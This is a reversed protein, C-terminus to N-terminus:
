PCYGYPSIYGSSHSPPLPSYMRYTPRFHWGHYGTGYTMGWGNAAVPGRTYYPPYFYHPYGYFNGSKGPWTYHINDFLGSGYDWGVQEVTASEESEAFIATMVASDSEDALVATGVTLSLGLIAGRLVALGGRRM